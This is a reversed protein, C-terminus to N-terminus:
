FELRFIEVTEDEPDKSEEDEVHRESTKLFQQWEEESLIPEPDAGLSDLYPELMRIRDRTLPHTSLYTWERALDGTADLLIKMAEVMGNPDIGADLLLRMGQRDASAEHQRSFRMEGVLAAWDLVHDLSEEGGVAAILARLGMNRLVARTGHQQVVHQIEHALIAALQEPRKMKRILGTNVAINGGPLAFANFTPDGVVYVTFQYPFDAAGTLRAVMKDMVRAHIEEGSRKESPAVYSLASRGLAEEWSVPIVATVIGVTLPLVYRYILWSAVIIGVTATPIFLRRRQRVSPGHFRPAGAPRLEGISELIGIDEVVLAEPLAARTEFRVVEGVHHGQTQRIEDYTWFRREGGAEFELGTATPRVRTLHPQPSRGDYYRGPWAPPRVPRM